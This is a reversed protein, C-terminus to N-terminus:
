AELRTDDVFQVLADEFDAHHLDSIEATGVRRGRVDGLEAAFVNGPLRRRFMCIKVLADEVRKGLRDSVEDAVGNIVAM